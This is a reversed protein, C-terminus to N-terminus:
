IESLYYFRYHVYNKNTQLINLIYEWLREFPIIELEQKFDPPIQTSILKQLYTQGKEHIVEHEFDKEDVLELMRIFISNRYNHRKDLHVSSLPKLQELIERTMKIDGNRLFFMYQIILTAITYGMRKKPYRTKSHLFEELDFGWKVLKTDNIFLIYARYIMWREKKNKDLDSYNKNTRVSRFVKTAQHVKEGKLLILFQYEKFAFWDDSGEKFLNIKETSYQIGEKINNLAYLCFIKLFTIEGYNLDVKIDSINSGIYKKEIYNCIKLNAKYDHQISNYAIELKRALLDLRSSNYMRANKDIASIKGPINEIIKESSSMSKNIMVMTDYFLEESIMIAKHFPKIDAIEKESNLLPTCRGKQSFEKRLLLLGDLAIEVLEFEM